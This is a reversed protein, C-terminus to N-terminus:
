LEGVQEESLGTAEVIRGITLGMEKLRLAIKRKEDRIQTQTEAAHRVESVLKAREAEDLSITNQLENAISIYEDPEIGRESVAPLLEHKIFAMITKPDKKLSDVHGNTISWPIHGFGVVPYTKNLLLVAVLRLLNERRVITVKSLDLEVFEVVQLMEYLLELQREITLTGFSAYGDLCKYLAASKLPETGNELQTLYPQSVGIREAAQTMTIGLLRRLEQCYRGFRNKPKRPSRAKETPISKNYTM